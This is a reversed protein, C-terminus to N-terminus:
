FGPAICGVRYYKTGTVYQVLNLAMNQSKFGPATKLGDQKFIRLAGGRSLKGLM